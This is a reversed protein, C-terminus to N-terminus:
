KAEKRGETLDHMLTHVDTIEHIRAANTGCFFLGNETDGQVAAVLARTICYPTSAPTCPIMCGLCKEIRVPDTNETRQIFASRVARGPFGAPSRVLVIDKEQADLIMQKFADAADCERTAIFRTAIQVGAAGEDMIRVIDEHDFIGGAAFVPIRCRYKEEYPALEKRIDQLIESNSQCTGAELQERRFGLHGGAQWGELVVFDPVCHHHRDWMQLVLRCARGSSVIPAMMAKGQVYQPLKLPLGAGSIIADAGAEIAARVYLDYHQSAVMVNVGLLGETEKARRIERQLARINAEIPSTEFDPEAFGPMAASIVGMGGEKMVASALRSMSVGIGMGGQIIPVRLARGGITVPRLM